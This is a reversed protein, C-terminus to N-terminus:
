RVHWRMGAEGQIMREPRRKAGQDKPRKNEGELGRKEAAEAQLRRKEVPDMDDEVGGDESGYCNGMTPIDMRKPLRRSRMLEEKKRKNRYVQDYKEQLRARADLTAEMRALCYEPNKEM